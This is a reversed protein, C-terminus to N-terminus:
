AAIHLQAEWQLAAQVEEVTLHWDGAVQQVDGKIAYAELITETRVGRVQPIGFSVEPDIVVPSRKGLPRIQWIVGQDDFFVRELFSAVPPAWQLQGSRLRILTLEEDLHTQRQLELVLERSRSDVLPKFHALPYPVGFEERMREIIPRMHQLSVKRTRYQNLFGAEVFEAWTVTNSGTPEPRIVPEYFRDGVTFGDLWRRLKSAQVGLLRAAETVTYLERNLTEVHAANGDPRDQRVVLPKRPMRPM